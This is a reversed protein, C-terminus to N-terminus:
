RGAATYHARVRMADLATGYIALEDMSGIFNDSTCGCNQRGVRWPDPMAAIARGGSERGVSSGDIFLELRDGDFTAVVHHYRDLELGRDSSVNPGAYSDNTYREFGVRDASFLIGWGKRPVRYDQHDIAWGFGQYETQRAWVEVSFPTTGAFDLGSPMAVNSAVAGDFTVATDADGAIAGPVGLNVGTGYAADHVALEDAAVLGDAEGFRLYVLPQDSLVEDRYHSEQRYDDVPFLFTCGSAVPALAAVFAVSCLTRTMLPEVTCRGFRALM